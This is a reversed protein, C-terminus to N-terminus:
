GCRRKGLAARTEGDGPANAVISPSIGFRHLSLDRLSGFDGGRTRLDFKASRCSKKLPQESTTWKTFTTLFDSRENPRGSVPFLSPSQRRGTQLYNEVAGFRMQFLSLLRNIKTKSDNIQRGLQTADTRVIQLYGNSGSLCCGFHWRGAKM